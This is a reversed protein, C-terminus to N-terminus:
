FFAARLGESARRSVDVVGKVEQANRLSVDLKGAGLMESLQTDDLVEALRHGLVSYVKATTTPPRPETNTDLASSSPSFSSPVPLASPSSKIQLWREEETGDFTCPVWYIWTKEDPNVQIGAGKPM